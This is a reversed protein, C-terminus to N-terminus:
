MIPLRFRQAMGDSPLISGAALEAYANQMKKGGLYYKM